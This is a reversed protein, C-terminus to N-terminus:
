CKERLYLRAISQKCTYAEEKSLDLFKGKTGVKSMPKKKKILIVPHQIQDFAKETQIQQSSGMKERM